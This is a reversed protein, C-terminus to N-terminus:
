VAFSFLHHSSVLHGDRDFVTAGAQALAPCNARYHHACLLLEAPRGSPLRTPLMVRVAPAASCCDARGAGLAQSPEIQDDPPTQTSQRGDPATDIRRTKETAM